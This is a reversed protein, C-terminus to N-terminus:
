VRTQRSFLIGFVFLFLADAKTQIHCTQALLHNNHADDLVDGASNSPVWFCAITNKFNRVLHGYAPSWCCILARFNFPVRM